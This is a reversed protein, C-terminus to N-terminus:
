SWEGIVPVTKTVVKVVKGMELTCVLEDTEQALATMSHNVSSEGHALLRSGQSLYLRVSESSWQPSNISCEITLPDGEFIQQEPAVVLM